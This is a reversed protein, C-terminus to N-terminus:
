LKLAEERAELRALLYKKCDKRYADLLKPNTADELLQADTMEKYYWDMNNTKFNVSLYLSKILM